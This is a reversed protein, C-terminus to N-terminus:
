DAHRGRRYPEFRGWFEGILMTWAFALHTLAGVWVPVMRVIWNNGLLLPQLWSLILYFNVIWLGLGILSAVVFRKGKPADPFWSSMILHFAIGYLAGTLIYLTCGVFLVLGQDADLAREGMPFTLYVRILQLPREGFLPAGAINAMLSVVAGVGGLMMGVVIHWLLYYQNPPWAADQETEVEIAELKRIANLHEEVLNRRTRQDM